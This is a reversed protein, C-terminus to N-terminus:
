CGLSIFAWSLVRSITGRGTKGNVKKNGMSKNEMSAAQPTKSALDLGGSRGINGAFGPRPVTQLQGILLKVICESARIM